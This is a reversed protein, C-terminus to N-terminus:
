PYKPGSATFRPVLYAFDHEVRTGDILAGPTQDAFLNGVSPSSKYEGNMNGWATGALVNEVSVHLVEDGVYVGAPDYPLWGPRSKRSHLNGVLAILHNKRALERLPGGMLKEYGASDPIDEPRTAHIVPMHFAVTLRGLKEQEFLFKALEWMAISSRGDRSKWDDGALDRAAPTHEISVVLPEADKRSLATLVLCRVLEPSENVGHPEGILLDRGQKVYDDLPTPECPAASLCPAALFVLFLATVYRM